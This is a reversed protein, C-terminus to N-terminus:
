PLVVFRGYAVFAAMVLLVANMVINSNEGRRLHTLAAGIMTLVLGVAATPTLWPLIGTLKPLVVGIAGLVELIGILRITGASFDNVWAMNEALKEKPRTAKMGGAMLFAIALLGQVVWLAINM